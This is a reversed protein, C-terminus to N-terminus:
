HQLTAPVALLCLAIKGLKSYNDIQKLITTDIEFFERIPDSVSKLGEKENKSAM